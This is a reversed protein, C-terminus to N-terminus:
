GSLAVFCSAAVRWAVLAAALFGRGGRSVSGAGAARSAPVALVAPCCRVSGCAGMARNLALDVLGVFLLLLRLLTVLLAPLLLCHLGACALLGRRREGLLVEGLWPELGM